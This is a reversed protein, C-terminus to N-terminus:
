ISVVVKLPPAVRHANLKNVSVDPLNWPSLNEGCSIHQNISLTGSNIGGQRPHDLSAEDGSQSASNKDPVSGSFGRENFNDFGFRFRKAYRGLIM